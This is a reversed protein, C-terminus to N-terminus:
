LPIMHVYQMRLFIWKSIKRYDATRFIIKENKAGFGNGKYIRIQVLQLPNLRTGQM